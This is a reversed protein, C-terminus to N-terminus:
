NGTTGAPPTQHTPNNGPTMDSPTPNAGPKTSPQATGPNDAPPTTEEEKKCGGIAFIAMSAALAAIIIKNKM